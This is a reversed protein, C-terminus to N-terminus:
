AAGGALRAHEALEREAAQRQEAEQRRREAIESLRRSADRARRSRWAAVLGGPNRPDCDITPEGAAPEPAPLALRRQESAAALERRSTAAIALLEAPDLRATDCARELALGPRPDRKWGPLTADRYRRAMDRRDAQQNPDLPERDGHPTTLVARLGLEQVHRLLAEHAGAAQLLAVARATDAVTYQGDSHYLERLFVPAPLARMVADGLEEFSPPSGQLGARVEAAVIGATPAHERDGLRGVAAEVDALEFSRLEALWLSAAAAPAGLNSHPWKIAVVSLVDAVEDYTM